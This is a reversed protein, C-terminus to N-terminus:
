IYLIGLSPCFDLGNAQPVYSTDIGTGSTATFFSNSHLYIDLIDSRYSSNAYDFIM